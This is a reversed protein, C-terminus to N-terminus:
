VSNTWCIHSLSHVSRVQLSMQQRVLKGLRKMSYQRGACAARCLWYERYGNLGEIEGLKPNHCIVGDKSLLPLLFPVSCM